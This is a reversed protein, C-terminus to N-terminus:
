LQQTTTVGDREVRLYVGGRGKSFVVSVGRQSVLRLSCRLPM